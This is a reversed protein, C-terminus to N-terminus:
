PSFLLRLAAYIALALAAVILLLSWINLQVVFVVHLRSWILWGAILVAIALLWRNRRWHNM